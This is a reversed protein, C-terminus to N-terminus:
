EAQAQQVPVGLVELVWTPFPHFPVPFIGIEDHTTRGKILAFQQLSGKRNPRLTVPLWTSSVMLAM